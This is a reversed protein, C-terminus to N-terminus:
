PSCVLAHLGLQESEQLGWGTELKRGLVTCTMPLLSVRDATLTM